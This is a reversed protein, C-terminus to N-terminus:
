DGDNRKEQDGSQPGSTGQIITWAVWGGLIAGAFVLMLTLRVGTGWQQDLSRGLWAGGVMALAIPWGISGLVGISRWFSRHSPERDRYRRMDREISLQLNPRRLDSASSTQKRAM